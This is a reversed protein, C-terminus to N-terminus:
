KLVFDPIHVSAFKSNQYHTYDIEKNEWLLKDLENVDHENADKGYVPNKYRAFFDVYNM